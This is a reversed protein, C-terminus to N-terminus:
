YIVICAYALVISGGSPYLRRFSVISIGQNPMLQSVEKLLLVNEEMALASTVPLM